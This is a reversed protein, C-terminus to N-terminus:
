PAATTPVITTVVMRPRTRRRSATSSASQPTDHGDEAQQQHGVHAKTAPLRVLTGLPPQIGSVRPATSHTIKVVQRLPRSSSRAASDFSATGRESSALSRAPTWRTGPVPTNRALLALRTGDASIRLMSCLWTTCSRM